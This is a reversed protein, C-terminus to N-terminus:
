CIKAGAGQAKYTGVKKNTAKGNNVEIVYEDAYEIGDKTKDCNPKLYYLKNDTIAYEGKQYLAASSDTIIWSTQGDIELNYVINGQADLVIIDVPQDFELSKYNITLVLYEKNDTGTIKNITSSSLQDFKSMLKEKATNSYDYYLPLEIDEVENDNVLLELNVVNYIYEETGKLAEEDLEPHNEYYTKADMLTYQYTIKQEENNLSYVMNDEKLVNEEQNNNTTTTIPPNNTEGKKASTKDVIIYTVLAAIFIILLIIIIILGKNDKPKEM